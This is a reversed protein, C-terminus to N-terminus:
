LRKFVNTPEGGVEVICCFIDSHDEGKVEITKM